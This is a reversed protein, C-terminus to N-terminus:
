AGAVRGGPRMSFRAGTPNDGDATRPVIADGHGLRIADGDFVVRQADGAGPGLLLDKGEIAGAAEERRPDLLAEVPAAEVAPHQLLVGGTVPRASDAVAADKGRLFRVPQDVM